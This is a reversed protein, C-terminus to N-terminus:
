RAIVLYILEAVLFAWAVKEGTTLDIGPKTDMNKLTNM